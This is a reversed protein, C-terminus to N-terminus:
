WNFVKDLEEDPVTFVVNHPALEQTKFFSPLRDHVNTFGARSNFDRETKLVQKGLAAVDDGTM